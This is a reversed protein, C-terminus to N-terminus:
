GVEKGSNKTSDYTEGLSHAKLLDELEDMNMEQCKFFVNKRAGMDKWVVAYLTGNTITLVSEM